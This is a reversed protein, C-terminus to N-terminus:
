RMVSSVGLTHFYMGGGAKMVAIMSVITWMSKEFCLPVYLETGVGLQVLRAALRNTVQELDIYTLAGDWASIAPTSTPRGFKQENIIDHICRDVKAPMTANWGMVQQRSYESFFDIEGITQDKAQNSIISNLVHDFTKSMNTAQAESLVTSWYGFHVEVGTDLAEVNVTVDYESPDQADLIEFEIASTTSETPASRKQFTFATNFLSTSSLQLEHQVDALACAQHAMSHVFDSQIQELAQKLPLDEKLDM